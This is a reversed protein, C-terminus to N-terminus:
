GALREALRQRHTPWEDALMSFVASDRVMGDAGPMDARLAGDFTCGLREIAARSRANRVDTQIRVRRVGWQEFAHTLMLFKAETNVPSRQAVPDLWTYGISAVDLQGPRRLGAADPRGTSWDWTALDYFRTSGVIRRHDVSFTAFPLQDGADRRAVAKAVYTVMGDRDWPVPTLDFTTRDDTAAALLDDVHEAALPLLHVFRGRLATLEPM